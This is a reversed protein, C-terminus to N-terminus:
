KNFIYTNNKMILLLVIKMAEKLMIRKEEANPTSTARFWPSFRENKTNAVGSGTIKPPAGRRSKKVPCVTELHKLRLEESKLNLALYLGLEEYDMNEIEIGSDYFENSVVQVTYDIDLSPYLAKVDLSGVITNKGLEHQSNTKNIAAIMDETSQCVTHANVYVEKLITSILFSLRHGCSDSVDCLPRVPPGKFENEYM